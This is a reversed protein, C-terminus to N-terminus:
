RIALVLYTHLTPHHQVSMDNGARDQHTIPAGGFGDADAVLNVNHLDDVLLDTGHEDDYLVKATPTM